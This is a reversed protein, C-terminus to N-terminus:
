KADSVLLTLSTLDIHATYWVPHRGKSYITSGLKLTRKKQHKSELLDVVCHPEAVTLFGEDM